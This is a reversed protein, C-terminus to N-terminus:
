VTELAQAVDALVLDSTECGVSYRILGVPMTQDWRYRQEAFSHTGGFSTAEATMKLAGLFRDVATQDALNFSVLSGMLRMQKQALPHDPDSKLGPYRVSTIKPHDGCFEALKQATECMRALRLELTQLGRLVMWSEMPGVIAGSLSRWQLIKAMMDPDRSAVHGMLCDSHGNVAKTDSCVVIDAGLDLCQQGLPTMTTNDCVLLAEAARAKEAIAAIDVLDLGPNGPTELWVMDFDSFDLQHFDRLPQEVLTVGRCALYNQSFYRVAHYGDQPLLLRMGPLLNSMLVASIAAMGSPFVLADGGEMETLVQELQRWSPNSNRGYFDTAGDPSGKLHYTSTFAPGASIPAEQQYQETQPHLWPNSIDPSKPQDHM